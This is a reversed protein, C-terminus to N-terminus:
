ENCRLFPEQPADPAYKECNKLYKIGDTIIEKPSERFFEELSLWGNFGYTKLAYFVEVQDILGGELSSDKCLFEPRPAPEAILQNGTYYVITNKIHVYSLFPGLMEVAHRPRMSGEYIGNAPDYIVGVHKPSLGDLLFRATAPSACLSGGHTELVYQISFEQALPVLAELGERAMKFMDMFSDRQHLSEKFNWAMWPPKVRLVKVGVSAAIESYRKIAHTKWLHATNILSIIELGYDRSAAAAERVYKSCEDLSPLGWELGEAGAEKCNKVIESVSWMRKLANTNM